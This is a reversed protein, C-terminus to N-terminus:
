AVGAAPEALLWDVDVEEGGVTATDWSDSVLLTHITPGALQELHSRLTADDPLGNVRPALRSRIQRMRELLADLDAARDFAGREGEAIGQAILDKIARENGAGDITVMQRWARSKHRYQLMAMTGEHRVFDAERLPAGRWRSALCRSLSIASALGSNLGRGPWFHIANAADGLLFGHTGPTTATQPYLRAAFRPRQEMALRFGTVGNLANAPVGFLRLGEQVRDWFASGNLLAPLFFARHVACYFEGGATRELLCPQAQICNTFVQRVPDIGVAEKSEQETLRMNLFGQGRLSNLLFRNQSVTLLISMPDPLSSQVRLGLVMDQVQKGDLGYVAPDAAGFKEAFHDRTRSRSGECIALVHQGVLDDRDADPDFPAPILEIRGAKENAIELLTDEIFSIRINRPRLGRISDPGEPWMEIFTGDRFLREQVEDPLKAYQRSQLTVVQQRRMNGQDPTNWTIRDGERMWRSEYVRIAVRSGLLQELLLAFSLGVPGGGAVTVRLVPSPALPAARDVRPAPAATAVAAPVEDLEFRFTEEDIAIQEGPQLPHATVLSGNVWTGNRSGRDHLVYGGAERRVEAHFRSALAGALVVDNEGNRGLTLPRDGIPFRKGTLPGQIGVLTGAM